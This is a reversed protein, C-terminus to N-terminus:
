FAHEINQSTRVNPPTIDVPGFPPCSRAQPQAPDGVHKFIILPSVVSMTGKSATRTADYMNALAEFLAM